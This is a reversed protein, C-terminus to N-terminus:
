IEVIKGNMLRSLIIATTYNYTGGNVCWKYTRGFNVLGVYMASEKSQVKYRKEM